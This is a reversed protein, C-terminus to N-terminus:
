ALSIPTQLTMYTGQLRGSSGWPEVLARSSVVVFSVLVLLLALALVLVFVWVLVLALVLAVFM